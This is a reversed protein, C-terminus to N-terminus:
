SRSKRAGTNPIAPGSRHNESRDAAARGNTSSLSPELTELEKSDYDEEFGVEDTERRVIRRGDPVTGGHITQLKYVLKLFDLSPGDPKKLCEDPRKKQSLLLDVYRLPAHKSNIHRTHGPRAFAREDSFPSHKYSTAIRAVHGERFMERKPGILQRRGIATFRELEKGEWTADSMIEEIYSLPISYQTDYVPRTDGCNYTPFWFLGHHFLHRTSRLNQGKLNIPEPHMQCGFLWAIWSNGLEMEINDGLYSEAQGADSILSQAAHSMCWHALEHMMVVGAYFTALLHKASGPPNALITDAFESPLGICIRRTRRYGALENAEDWDSAGKESFPQDATHPINIGFWNHDRLM